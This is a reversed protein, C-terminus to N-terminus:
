FHVSVVKLKDSNMLEPHWSNSTYVMDYIDTVVEKGYSFIGHTVCLEVQSPELQNLLERVGVFTRGGDCIDDLVFLKSGVPINEAGILGQSVIEGTYLNREKYCSIVGLAGTEKAFKEAKKKAGMDPAVIYWGNRFDHIKGFIEVQNSVILNNIGAVAADSHPDYVEVLEFNMSNLYNAFVRSGNPEGANCVRDQRAYPLYPLVLYLKSIPYQVRIADVVHSLAVQMIPSNLVTDIHIIAPSLDVAKSGCNINVSVEGGTRQEVTVYTFGGGNVAYKIM